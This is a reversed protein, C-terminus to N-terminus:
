SVEAQVEHDPATTSQWDAAPVSVGLHTAIATMCTRSHRLEATMQRYVADRALERAEQRELHRQWTTLLKRAKSIAQVIAPVMIGLGVGAYAVVPQGTAGGVAMGTAVPLGGLGLVEWLSLTTNSDPM